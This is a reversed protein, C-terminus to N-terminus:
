RSGGSSRSSPDSRQALTLCLQTFEAVSRGGLEGSVGDVPRRDLSGAAALYSRSAAVPEGTRELSGALMFHAFGHEPDLYIAKRLPVLAETDRGLNTLAVGHLYHAEARLPTATAVEAAVDAAEDYRGTELASRVADLPDLPELLEGEDVPQGYDERVAVTPAAPSSAAGTRETPRPSRPAPAPLEARDRRDSDSRRRDARTPRLDDETRRDPLVWRREEGAPQEDLRRYVFADGLSVLSFDDNIQWLTEAHGLFLYGGDRLRGHLRKMLGRTTNRDFYITVNRCLVLDVEGDDFPPAETVLNHHRFEVLERVEDRVVWSATSTDMVFWRALDLPETMVFAREAYHGRRASGLARNSVDTALVKIDWDASPGLLERILIAVTYAEEGTSCGASWIRLRKTDAAQRLLEPLVHRRLARVQPPNRFFHTEPITVEDLLYQREKAGDPGTLLAIYTSAEAVGTAEMREAVCFTLSDRRSEDFVLGATADLLAALVIFEDDTLALRKV